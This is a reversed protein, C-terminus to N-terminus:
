NVVETDLEQYKDVVAKVMSTCIELERLCRKCEDISFPLQINFDNRCRIKNNTDISTNIRIEIM